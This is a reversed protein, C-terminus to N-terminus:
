NSSTGNQSSRHEPPPNTLYKLAAPYSNSAALRMWYDSLELNVPTSKGDRYRLAVDYQDAPVNNSAQQLQFNFLRLDAAAQEESTYQRECTIRDPLVRYIYKYRLPNGIFPIGHDWFGPTTTPVACYDIKYGLNTPHNIVYITTTTVVQEEHGSIGLAWAAGPSLNRPISQRMKFQALAHLMDAPDGPDPIPQPDPIFEMSVHKIEVQAAQPYLKVIRILDGGLYYSGHGARSFDFLNTGILRLDQAVSSISLLCLLTITKM